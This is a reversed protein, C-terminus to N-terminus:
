KIHSSILRVLMPVAISLVDPPLRNKLLSIGRMKQNNVTSITIGLAAAIEKPKKGEEFTMSIVKRCQEPLTDVADFIQRLVEARVIVQLITGEYDEEQALLYQQHKDKIQNSSLYNLSSNKVSTYLFSKLETIDELNKQKQWVRIFVEQVIDESDLPNGTIKSSFFCLPQYFYKFLLKFAEQDGNKFSSLVELLEIDRM